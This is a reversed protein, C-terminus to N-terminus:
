ENSIEKVNKTMFGLRPPSLFGDADDFADKYNYGLKTMKDIKIKEDGEWIPYLVDAVPDPSGRLHVEIMNGDIFEANYIKVGGSKLEKSIWKPIQVIDKTREWRFFHSMDDGRFAEYCHKITEDEYTVSLHRGEFFECWFYGPPVKTHDGSEIWVKSSGVGMGSLNMIPRVVFWDSTVPAVGSPGCYYGLKESIWLKNYFKRLKPFQLYAHADNM